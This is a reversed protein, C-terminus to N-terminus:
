SNPYRIIVLGSGGASGSQTSVGNIGGGGGGGTNATGVASTKSYDAGGGDGGGGVGGIGAVVASGSSERGAGGGGGGAYYYTGTLLQGTSTAYGWSTYASTGIGGNGAVGTTANSGAAGAGGGGGAVYRRTTGSGSSTANGGNNGQGAPSATGGNGNVLDGTVGGGGASGGAGGGDKDGGKGGGASTITSFVSDSGNVAEAGGAGVTVTYSNGANLLLGSTSRVGGAGGGGGGGTPNGRGGGGGAIVLAEAGRIRELATFTGTSTFTHYTYNEDATITGGSARSGGIGYLAFTSHQMFSGNDLTLEVSTIASSSSWLTTSLTQLSETINNESVNESFGSKNNSGAYNQIYIEGNAFTSATVTNGTAEGLYRAGSGAVPTSGNGNLYKNSFSSTSGNFGIRMPDTTSSRNSRTSWKILIDTYNQPINSFTITATTSSLIQASILQYSQAM